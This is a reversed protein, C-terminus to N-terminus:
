PALPHRPWGPLPPLVGDHPSGEYRMPTPRDLIDACNHVRREVEAKLADGSLSFLEDRKQQHSPPMSITRLKTIIQATSLAYSFHWGDFTTRKHCGLRIGNRFESTHQVANHFWVSDTRFMLARGGPKPLICHEGYYYSRLLPIECGSGGAALLATRAVDPDLLEDTDSFYVRHKPFRTRLVNNVYLRQASEILFPNAKLDGTNIHDLPVTIVEINLFPLESRLEAAVREGVPFNRGGTHTVNGQIVLTTSVFASHLKVRYKLTDAEQSVLVVDVWPFLSMDLAPYRSANEISAMWAAVAESNHTHWIGLKDAKTKRDIRGMDYVALPKTSRHIKHYIMSEAICRREISSVTKTRIPFDHCNCVDGFFSKDDDLPLLPPRFLFTDTNYANTHGRWGTVLFAADAHRTDEVHARLFLNAAPTLVTDVNIHLVLDFSRWLESAANLTIFHGCQHDDKSPLLVVTARKHPFAAAAERTEKLTANQHSEVVLLSFNTVLWMDRSLGLIAANRRITSTEGHSHVYLLNGRSPPAITVSTATDIVLLAQVIAIPKM